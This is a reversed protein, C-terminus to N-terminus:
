DGAGTVIADCRKVLDVLREPSVPMTGGKNHKVVSAAGYRSVLLDAVDDVFCNFNPKANDIFGVVKGSLTELSHALPRTESRAPATPDFVLAGADPNRDAM